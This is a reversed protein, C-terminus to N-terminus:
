AWPRCTRPHSAICARRTWPFACGPAATGPPRPRTARAAALPRAWRVAQDPNLLSQGLELPSCVSPGSPGTPGSFDVRIRAEELMRGPQSFLGLELVQTDLDRWTEDRAALAPRAVAAELGSSLRGPLARSRSELIRAQARSGPPVALRLVEVPDDPDMSNTTRLRLAGDADRRAPEWEPRIVFELGQDNSVLVQLEGAQVAPLILLLGFL